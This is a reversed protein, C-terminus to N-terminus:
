QDNIKAKQIKISHAPVIRFHNESIPRNARKIDSGQDGIVKNSVVNRNSHEEMCQGKLDKAGSRATMMGDVNKKM